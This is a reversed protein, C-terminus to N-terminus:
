AVLAETKTLAGTGLIPIGEYDAPIAAYTEIASRTGVRIQTSRANQLQRQAAFPMFIFSPMLGGNSDRYATVLDALLADTLTAGTSGADLNCLRAIRNANTVSFGAWTTLDAIYGMLQKSNSGTILGEKFIIEDPSILGSSENFAFGCGDRFSNGVAYVSMHTETEAVSGAKVVNASKVLAAAGDFGETAETAYYMARALTQFASLTVGRVERDLAAEKGEFDADAVAKDLKVLGALIALNHGRLAYTSGSADVGANAARWGTAPLATRSVTQFQTGKVLGADMVRLEPVQAVAEEVVGVRADAANGNKLIDYITNM